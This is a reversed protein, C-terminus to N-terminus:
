QTEEKYQMPAASSERITLRYPLFIRAAAPITEEQLARLLIETSRRGLEYMPQAVTTILPHLMATYDIGDFGVVTLDDPVRLGREQAAYIVSMALVDSICFVATPPEPLSLLERSRALGSAFSYVPDAKTEYAAEVALGAAQMADRFGNERQETSIHLNDASLIAIRRHGLSLLYQTAELAAQYNDISVSPLSLAPDYECCQVLPFKGVYEALLPSRKQCGLFLVGDARHEHLTQLMQQENETKGGTNCIFVSYGHDRAVDGIGTLINSYYPNSFNPALALIVHTENRRLNRAALNPTYHLAEITERVRQATEPRVVSVNNLVRSVTAVSVGARAAVQEITVM